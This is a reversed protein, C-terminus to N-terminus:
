RGARVHQLRECHDAHAVTLTVLQQHLRRGEAFHECGCEISLSGDVAMRVRGEIAAIQKRVVWLGVRSVQCWFLASAWARLRTM